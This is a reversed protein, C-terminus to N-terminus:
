YYESPDSLDQTEDNDDDEELRDHGYGLLDEAGEANYREVLVEDGDDGCPVNIGEELGINKRARLQRDATYLVAYWPQDAMDNFSHIYFFIV